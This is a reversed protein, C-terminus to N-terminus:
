IDQCLDFSWVAGVCVLQLACVVAGAQGIADVM